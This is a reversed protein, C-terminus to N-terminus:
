RARLGPQRALGPVLLVRLLVLVLVPVLLVPVPVLVLVLVLGLLLLLPPAPPVPVLLWPRAPPQCAPRAQRWCRTELMTLSATFRNAAERTLLPRSTRM